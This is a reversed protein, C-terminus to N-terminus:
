PHMVRPLVRLPLPAVDRKQPTLAATGKATQPVVLAPYEEMTGAADMIVNTSGAANFVRVDNAYYVGTIAMNALVQGPGANLNSVPPVASLDNRWLTLFTVKSPLVATLNSVIAQTNYGAVASPAIVPLSSGPGLASPLGLGRRSDVFRTPTPLSQYRWGRDGEVGQFYVGVVDVLIHAPASSTNLVGFSPLPVASGCETTCRGAPITAMNAVVSGRTFNLTSANPPDSIGDWTTLYGTAGPSVVTINVAFARIRVNFAPGYDLGQVLHYGGPLPGRGDSRTDVARYPRATSVFDALGSATPDATSTASHYFGVVDALVQTSGIANYFRVRGDAGMPVTVLNAGTWGAPFNISSADPRTTGSPYITLYGPRTPAVVTVNLVVASVGTTPISARGAIPVNIELGSGVPARTAGLGSRTDLVRTPPLPNFAGAATNIGVATVSVVRDGAASPLRLDAVLGGESTARAALAVACTAGAALTASSCSDTTIHWHDANAGELSATGFTTLRDATVTLTQPATNTGLAAVGFRAYDVSSNFRLEGVLTSEPSGCSMSYTAALSTIVQSVPDYAVDHVQVTGAGIGGCGRSEGVVDLLATTPGGSRDTQYSGVHLPGSTPARLIVSWGGPNGSLILAVPSPDATVQADIFERHGARLVYSAPAGEVTLATFSARPSIAAQATTATAATAAVGILVVVSAAIARLRM